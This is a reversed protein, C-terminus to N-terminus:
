TVLLSSKPARLHMPPVALKVLSSGRDGTFATAVLFLERHMSLRGPTLRHRVLISGFLACGPVSPWVQARTGNAFVRTTPGPTLNDYTLKFPYDGRGSSKALVVQPQTTINP